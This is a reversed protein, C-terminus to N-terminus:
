GDDDTTTSISSDHFSLPQQCVQGSAAQSRQALIEGLTVITARILEAEDISSKTQGLDDKVIHCFRTAFMRGICSM